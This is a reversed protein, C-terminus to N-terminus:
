NRQIDVRETCTLSRIHLMSYRFHLSILLYRLANRLM